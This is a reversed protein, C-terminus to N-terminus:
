SCFFFEIKVSILHFSCGKKCDIDPKARPDNLQWTHMDCCKIEEGKIATLCNDWHLRRDFFGVCLVDYVNASGKAREVWKSVILAQFLIFKLQIWFWIDLVHRPVLHIMVPKLNIKISTKWHLDEEDKFHDATTFFVVANLHLPSQLSPWHIIDVVILIFVVSILKNAVGFAYFFNFSFLFDHGVNKWKVKGIFSDYNSLFRVSDILQHNVTEPHM